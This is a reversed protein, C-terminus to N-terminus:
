ALPQKKAMGNPRPLDIRPRGVREYICLTRHGMDYPLEYELTELTKLGCIEAAHDGARIEDLEPRAKAAIFIGHQSLFPAAYEVLVPLSAVARATVVSFSQSERQAFSELRDHVSAAHDLGLESIFSSVAQTKKGVSDLLVSERGSVIALPLGPYGAGTGMDLYRGEPVLKMAPLLLLSDLIHLVLADLPSTIRTLNVRQNYEVVALLHKVCLTLEERSVELHYPACLDAVVDVLDDLHEDVLEPVSTVM